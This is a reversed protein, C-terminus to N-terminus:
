RGPRGPVASATVTLVQAAMTYVLRFLAATARSGICARGAKRYM